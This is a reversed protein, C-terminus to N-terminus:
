GGQKPATAEILRSQAAQGRLSGGRPSHPLPRVVQRAPKDEWRSDRPPPKHRLPTAMRTMQHNHRGHRESSDGLSELRHLLRNVGTKHWKGGRATPVGRANLELLIDRALVMGSSRIERIIPALAKAQNLALWRSVGAPGPAHVTEAMGLRELMRVVTTYHWRGFRETPVRRRNLEAAITRRSVFGTARLELVTSAFAKAVARRRKLVSKSPKRKPGVSTSLKSLRAAALPSETVTLSPESIVSNYSGARARRPPRRRAALDGGTSGIDVLRTLKPKIWKPPRSSKKV